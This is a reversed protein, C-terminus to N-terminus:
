CKSKSANQVIAMYRDLIYGVEWEYSRIYHLSQLLDKQWWVM